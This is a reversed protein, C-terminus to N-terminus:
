RQPAPVLPLIWIFDGLLARLGLAVATRALFCVYVTAQGDRLACCLMAACTCATAPCMVYAGQGYTNGTGRQVVWM